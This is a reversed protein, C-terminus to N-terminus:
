HWSEGLRGGIRTDPRRWSSEFNIMDVLLGNLDLILLKRRTCIVPAKDPPLSLDLLKDKESAGNEIVIKAEKQCDTSCSELNAEVLDCDLTVKALNGLVEGNNQLM